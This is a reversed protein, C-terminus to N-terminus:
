NGSIIILKRGIAAPPKPPAERIILPEPTPPRPPQQRIILPPAPPTLVNPQQTIVIEGPAPPTPPRLYRIALEQIYELHQNVRKNVIEPNPDENILYDTIPILGKWNIVESKNAWIGRQGLVNIEETELLL